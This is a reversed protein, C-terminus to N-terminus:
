VPSRAGMPQGAIARLFPAAQPDLRTRNCTVDISENGAV